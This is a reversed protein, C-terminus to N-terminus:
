KCETLTKVSIRGTPAIEVSRFDKAVTSCFTFHGSSSVRGSPRYSVRDSYTSTATLDDVGAVTTTSNLADFTAITPEDADQIPTYGTGTTGNKDVFVYWGGAWGDPVDGKPKIVVAEHQKLAEMRALQLTSVMANTTSTLRNSAIMTQFSPFGIAVMISMIAITVMLEILTFGRTSM